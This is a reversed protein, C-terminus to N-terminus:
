RDFRRTQALRQALCSVGVAIANRESAWLRRWLVAFDRDNLVAVRDLAMVLDFLQTGQPNDM